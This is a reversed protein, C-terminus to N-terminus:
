HAHGPLRPGHEPAGSGSEAGGPGSGAGPGSAGSGCCTGAGIGSASGDSAPAAPSLTTIVGPLNRLGSADPMPPVAFSLMPQHDLQPPPVRDARQPGDARKMEIPRGLESAEPSGRGPSGAAGSWTLRGTVFRTAPDAPQTRPSFGIMAIAVLLGHLTLSLSLPVCVPRRSRHFSAGSAVAPNLVMDINLRRAATAPRRGGTQPRNPDGSRHPM